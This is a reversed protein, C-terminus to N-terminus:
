IHLSRTDPSIRIMIQYLALAILMGFLAGATVDVPFHVGVYVQSFAILFAWFYLAIKINRRMSFVSLSLFCALAFHNASHSSPFSYGSGCTILVRVNGELKSDRCPRMRKVQPKIISSNIFDTGGVAMVAFIIILLSKLKFRYVIFFLLILYLPIWTMRERIIPALYDLVPNALDTNIFHFLSYDFGM